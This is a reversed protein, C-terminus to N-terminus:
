LALMDLPVQRFLFGTLSVGLMGAGEDLKDGGKGRKWDAFFPLSLTGVEGVKTM